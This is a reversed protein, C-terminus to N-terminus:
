MLGFLAIPCNFTSFSYSWPQASIPADPGGVTKWNTIDGTYIAKIQKDTLEHVPNDQHLIMTIGDHAITAGHLAREQSKLARSVMGIDALGTVTDAIGRSSGGTQVDIRTGPHLREFRKGIESVLPAMTSSGTIILKGQTAVALTQSFLVVIFFFVGLWVALKFRTMLSPIFQEMFVTKLNKLFAPSIL